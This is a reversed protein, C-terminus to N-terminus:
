ASGRRRAKRVGYLVVLLVIVIVVVILLNKFLGGKKKSKKSKKNGAVAQAPSSKTAQLGTVAGTGTPLAGQAIAASAPAQRLAPVAATATTAPGLLLGALVFLPVSVAAVPRM